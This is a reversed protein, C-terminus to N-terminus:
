KEGWGLTMTAWLDHYIRRPSTHAAPVDQTGLAAEIVSSEQIRPVEVVAAHTAFNESTGMGPMTMPMDDWLHLYEDLSGDMMPCRHRKDVEAREEKAIRDKYKRLLVRIIVQSASKIDPAGKPLSAFDDPPSGDAEGAGARCIKELCEAYRLESRARRHDWGPLERLPFCLKTGVVLCTIVKVWELASFDGHELEAAVDFLRKMLPVSAWIRSSLQSSVKGPTKGSPAKWLEHCYLFVEVFLNGLVVAPSADAGAPGLTQWERLQSELGLTMFHAERGEGSSMKSM